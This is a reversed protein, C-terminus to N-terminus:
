YLPFIMLECLPFNSTSCGEPSVQDLTGGRSLRSRRAGVLGIWGWHTRKTYGLGLPARSPTNRSAPEPSLFGKELLWRCAEGWRKDASTTDIVTEMLVVGNPPSLAARLGPTSSGPRLTPRSVRHCTLWRSICHIGLFCFGQLETQCSYTPTTTPHSISTLLCGPTMDIRYSNDPDSLKDSNWQAGELTFPIQFASSFWQALLLESHM